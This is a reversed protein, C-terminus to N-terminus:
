TNKTSDVPDKTYTVEHCEIIDSALKGGWVGYPPKTTLAWELCESVFPCGGCVAIATRKDKALTSFFMDTKGCCPASGFWDPLGFENSV